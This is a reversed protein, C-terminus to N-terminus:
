FKARLGLFYRPGFSLVQAINGDLGRFDTREENTLNLAEFSLKVNDTLDYGVRFEVVTNDDVLRIRGPSDVFQQFYQSRHKVIVQTDFDGGSWYLQGSFVNESLGFIEVPPVLGVLETPDGNADFGIGAGAFDDEFEFNSDAYNYSLKGGFGSLFGPLYTFAHSATVEIGFLDSEDDTTEISSIPATIELSGVANPDVPDPILGTALLADNTDNSGDGIITFTSDIFTNQYGGEFQKYYAGVALVTDANPYWEVALDVNWSTFPELDASGGGQGQTTIFSTIDEETINLVDGTDLGPTGAAVPTTDAIDRQVTGVQQRTGLVAPDSRSLGRFIGARLLVDDSLDLVLSASPLFETYSFSDTNTDLFTNTGLADSLAGSNFNTANDLEFTGSDDIDLLFPSIFSRSDVETDILRAGFNGRAPLGFLETEYNAQFYIAFTSEEVDVSSGNFTNNPTLESTVAVDNELLGIARVLDLSCGANIANFDLFDANQQASVEEFGGTLPAEICNNAIETAVESYNDLDRLDFDSNINGRREYELESYRVGFEVSNVLDIGDTQLEFDTRFATLTNERIDEQVRARVRDDADPDLALAAEIDAQTTGVGDVTAGALFEGFNGADFVGAPNHALNTSTNLVEFVGVGGGSFDASVIREVEDGFRLSEEQEIRFTNSYAADFSGTLVDSFQYEINFGFGEYEEDRSFDQGILQIEQGNNEQGNDNPDSRNEFSQLIGNTIVTTPENINRNLEAFVLDSRQEAQNRESLQADFNIDLRDNPQWQFAGFFADRDDGTRNQRFQASSSLFAFEREDDTLGPQRLDSEDDACTTSTPIGNNLDCIRPTNSRTFEQEPNTEDRTQIGLSVGFTGWDDTEFQDIYSATLRYGVEDGGRVDQEDDNYAGKLGIQFSQRGHEIPKRTDLHIQGGVAGEVFSASQTKYIGIQNFLESPFISFNVARTGNGSTARRGNIVTSTLFPGLGRISIETAGGNERHASAGTVTELAEGISLAPIGGIEDSSLGDVIATSNRKLSIADQITARTGTVIVEEINQQEQALLGASLSSAVAAVLIISGVSATNQRNTKGLYKIGM